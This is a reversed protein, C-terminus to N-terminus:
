DWDLVSYILSAISHCHEPHCSLLLEFLEKPTKGSDIQQLLSEACFLWDLEKGVIHLRTRCSDLDYAFEAAFGSLLDIISERTSSVRDRLKQVKDPNINM